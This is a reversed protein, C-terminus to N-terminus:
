PSAVLVEPFLDAGGHRRAADMTAIVVDYSVDGDIGLVLPTTSPLSLAALAEGVAESPVDDYGACACPIDAKREGDLFLHLGAGTVVLRPSPGDPAPGDGMSPTTVDVVGADVFSAAALLFPILITVLNMMPIMSIEDHSASRRSM